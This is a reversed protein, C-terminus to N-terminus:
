FAAKAKLFVSAEEYLLGGAFEVAVDEPVLRFEKRSDGPDFPFDHMNLFLRGSSSNRSVTRSKRVTFLMEVRNRVFKRLVTM